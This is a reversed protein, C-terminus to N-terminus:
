APSSRRTVRSVGSGDGSECSIRFAFGYANRSSAGSSSRRVCATCARRALSGAEPWSRPASSAEAMARTRSSSRGSGRSASSSCSAEIVAPKREASSAPASGGSKNASSERELRAASTRRAAPAMQIAASRSGSSVATWGAAVGSRVVSLQAPSGIPERRSVRRRSRRARACGGRSQRVPSPPLWRPM